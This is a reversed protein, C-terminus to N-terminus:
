ETVVKTFVAVDNASALASWVPPEEYLGGVIQVFDDVQLSNYFEVSAAGDAFSTDNLVDEHYMIVIRGTTLTIDAKSSGASAPIIESVHYTGDAQVDLVIATWYEFGDTPYNGKETEIAEITSDEAAYGVMYSGNYWSNATRYTGYPETVSDTVVVKKTVKVGNNLTFTWTEANEILQGITRVTTDIYDKLDAGARASLPKRSESTNFDDVIDTVKVWGKKEDATVHINNNAVHPTLVKASESEVRENLANHKELLNELRLEHDKIKSNVVKNQVANTSTQSLESDIIENAVQSIHEESLLVDGNLQKYVGDYHMEFTVAGLSEDITRAVRIVDGRNVVFPAEKTPLTSVGDELQEGGEIYANQLEETTLGDSTNVTSNYRVIQLISGSSTKEIWVNCDYPAVWQYISSTFVISVTTGNTIDLCGSVVEDFEDSDQTITNSATEEQVGSNIKEELEQKWQLLLDSYEEIVGTTNEFGEGVKIDSFVDTWKKYTYVGESTCAFLIRIWLRGEYKTAQGDLTVSFVLTETENEDIHLDKIVYVGTSEQTRDAKRNIFHLEVKDCLTMDHGEITKPIEFTLIESNHDGQMLKNKANKANTIEMTFPDIIYHTDNDRVEHLHVM